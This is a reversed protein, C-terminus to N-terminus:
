EINLLYISGDNLVDFVVQKMDPSFCPNMEIIDPTNTINRKETGDANIIFIDSKTITYGDDESIMYVLKKSDSSWKARYGKGLDVLNTGDINMSYLNGGVVEFVVKSQDPSTSVNIFRLNKNIFDPHNILPNLINEQKTLSNYIVLQNNQLIATLESKPINQNKLKGTNYVEIGNDTPLIVKSDGDAWNPLYSMKTKYDTLNFSENTEINFIKVANLRKMGEYKAVRCLLSQSDNSWKMAFGAAKEDSIQKISQVSFDYIWIGTYGSQTFALKTGDPSWVPAM